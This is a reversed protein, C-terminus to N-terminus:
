ERAHPELGRELHSLPVRRLGPRRSQALRGCRLSFRETLLGHELAQLVPIAGGVAAEYRLLAGTAARATELAGGHVSLLHKNATVVAVGRELARLM